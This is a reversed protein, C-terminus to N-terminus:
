KIYHAAKHWDIVTIDIDYTRTM